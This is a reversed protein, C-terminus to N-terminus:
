EWLELEVLTECYTKPSTDSSGALKPEGDPEEEMVNKLCAPLMVSIMTWIVDLHYLVSNLLDIEAFSASDAFFREGAVFRIGRGPLDISVTLLIVLIVINLTKLGACPGSLGGSLSRSKELCRGLSQLLATSLITAPIVFQFLIVMYGYLWVDISAEWSARPSPCKCNNCKLVPMQHYLHVLAPCLLLGTSLFVGFFTMTVHLSSLILRCKNMVYSVVVLATLNFVSLSMFCASINPLIVCATHDEIGTFDSEANLEDRLLLVLHALINGVNVIAQFVVFSKLSNPSRWRSGWLSHVAFYLNFLVGSCFVIPSVIM